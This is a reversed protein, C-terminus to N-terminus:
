IFTSKEKNSQLPVFYNTYNQLRMCFYLRWVVKKQTLAFVIITFLFSFSLLVFFASLRFSL